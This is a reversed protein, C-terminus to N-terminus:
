QSAFELHYLLEDTFTEDRFYLIAVDFYYIVWLQLVM